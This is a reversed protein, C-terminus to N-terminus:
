SSQNRFTGGRNNNNVICYKCLSSVFFFVNPYIRAWRQTDTPNQETHEFSISIRFKNRFQFFLCVFISHILKKKERERSEKSEKRGENNQEQHNQCSDICIELMKKFFALKTKNSKEFYNKEKKLM